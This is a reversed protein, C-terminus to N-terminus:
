IRHDLLYRGEGIARRLNGLTQAIASRTSTPYSMGLDTLVERLVEFGRDLHGSRLLEEAARRRLEISRLRDTALEAASQYAEAALRGQGGNALADALAVAVLLREPAAPPM